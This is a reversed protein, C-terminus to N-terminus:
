SAYVVLVSGVFRDGGLWSGCSDCRHWSFGVHDGVVWHGGVARVRAETEADMGSSDANAHWMACDSCILGECWEEVM